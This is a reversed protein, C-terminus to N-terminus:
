DSHSGQVGTGTGESQPVAPTLEQVVLVSGTGPVVPDVPRM